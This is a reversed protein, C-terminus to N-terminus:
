QWYTNDDLVIEKTKGIVLEYNATFIYSGNSYLRFYVKAAESDFTISEGSPLDGLNETKMIENESNLHFVFLDRLTVNSTQNTVKCKSIQNFLDDEKKDCSSFSVFLFILSLFLFSKELNIKKM